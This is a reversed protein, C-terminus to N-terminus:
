LKGGNKELIRNMEEQLKKNMLKLGLGGGGGFYKDFAPEMFPRKSLRVSPVKKWENNIKFTLYKKKRPFIEAGKEQFSAYFGYNKAPGDKGKNWTTLRGSWDDFAYYNIARKLRGTNRPALARADKRMESFVATMMKKSIKPMEYKFQEILKKFEKFELDVSLTM